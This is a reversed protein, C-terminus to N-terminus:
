YASFRISINLTPILVDKSSTTMKTSNVTNGVFNEFELVNRYITVEIHMASHLTINSISINM